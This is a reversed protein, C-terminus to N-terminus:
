CNLRMEMREGLVMWVFSFWFCPWITWRYVCVEKVDSMVVLVVRLIKTRRL